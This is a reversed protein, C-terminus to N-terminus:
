RVIEKRLQSCPVSEQLPPKTGTSRIMEEGPLPPAPTVGTAQHSAAGKWAPATEPVGKSRVSVRMTAGEAPLAARFTEPIGSGTPTIAPLVPWETGERSLSATPVATVAKGSTTPFM